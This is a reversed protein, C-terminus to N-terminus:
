RTLHVDMRNHYQVFLIIEVHLKSLLIDQLQGKVAEM